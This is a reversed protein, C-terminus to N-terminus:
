WASATRRGAAWSSRCATLPTRRSAAAAASPAADRVAGLLAVLPVGLLRCKLDGLANDVGAMAMSAVGPRGLNRIAQAMAVWAAPVALAGRGQVVPALTGHILRATSTDACTYGLGREGGATM